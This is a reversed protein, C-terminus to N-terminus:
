LLDPQNNLTILLTRLRLHLPALRDLSFSIIRPHSIILEAGGRM